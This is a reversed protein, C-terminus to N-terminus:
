VGDCWYSWREKLTKKGTM